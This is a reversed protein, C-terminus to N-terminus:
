RGDSGAPVPSRHDMRASKGPAVHFVTEPAHIQEPARRGRQLGVPDQHDHILVRAPDNPEMRSLDITDCETPHEVAGNSPLAPHRLVDAGVVIRKYRNWRHCALRRISSAVSILDM